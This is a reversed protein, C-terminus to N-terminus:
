PALRLLQGSESDTLVYVLGDPGVRVDRIREGREGLMRHQEPSDGSLSVRYVARDALAGVLVYGQWDAFANGDYIALGSPAISPTWHLEPQHTGPYETYPTVRAWTYDLGHTAIPWGYNAGAEIVNTEDGGRPGHEHAILRSNAHDFALGQINRHGYSYIEPLADQVGVFPNDDPVSGDPNLRVLTGIHSSLKQAEERYNFGDGLGLVLTGDPLWAIRGGYHVLGRKAPQARFIEEVGQLRNGQLRGRSLCTHNAEPTGCAYSLYVHQSDVFDPALSVEFLGAQAGTLVEPVGVISEPQLEGDASVRRLRGSRETVLMSGEPLFALSWPHELGEVVTDVRWQEQAQAPEAQLMGAAALPMALASLTRGDVRRPRRRWRAFLWGALAATLAMALTGELGRTAAILTPPPTLADILRFTAWLGLGAAIACVLARWRQLVSRTLGMAALQSVLFSCGFVLAYFPGFKFLDELCTQAWVGPPINVGLGVLALLNIQTQVLTGLVTGVVLASMFALVTVPWSTRTTM